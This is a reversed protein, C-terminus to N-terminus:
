GRRMSVSVIAWVVGAFLAAATAVAMRELTTPNNLFAWAVLQGFAGTVIASWVLERRSM